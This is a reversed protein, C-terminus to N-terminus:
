SIINDIENVLKTIFEACDNVIQRDIYLHTETQPDFDSEHAIKNRRNVILSLTSRIDKGSMKLKQSSSLLKWIKRLGLLSLAYEISKPSQFSNGSMIRRLESTLLQRQEFPNPENIICKVTYIPLLVDIDSSLLKNFFIDVVREIVLEHVYTDFASVIMVFEARLLSSSDLAPANSSIYGYIADINKLSTISDEFQKKAKSM